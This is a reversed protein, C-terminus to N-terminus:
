ASFSAFYSLKCAQARSQYKLYRMEPLASSNFQDPAPLAYGTVTKAKELNIKKRAANARGEIQYSTRNAFM